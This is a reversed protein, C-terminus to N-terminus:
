DVVVEQGSLMDDVMILTISVPHGSEAALETARDLMSAIEVDSRPEREGASRYEELVHVAHELDAVSFATTNSLRLIADELHV